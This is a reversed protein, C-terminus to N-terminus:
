KACAPTDLFQQCSECWQQLHLQGWIIQERYIFTEREVDRLFSEGFLRNSM